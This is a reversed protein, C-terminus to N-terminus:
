STSNPNLVCLRIADYARRGPARGLAQGTRELADILEAAASPKPKTAAWGNRRLLHHRAGGPGVDPRPARPGRGPWSPLDPRESHGLPVRGRRVDAGVDVKLARFRPVAAPRPGLNVEGRWPRRTMLYHTSPSRGRDWCHGDRVLVSGSMPQFLWKHLDLTGLRGTSLLGAPRGQRHARRVRRLRRKTCGCGSRPAALWDLPDVAGTNTSGASACLAFARGSDRDRRVAAAAEPALWPPRRHAAGAGPLASLGDGLGDPWRPIRRTSVYLVSDAPRVARPRVPALCALRNAASGGTVLGATGPPLGLWGRFWDTVELEVQTPGASEMWARLVPQGGGGDTGGARYAWSTFSPVFAFYGPHDTRSSPPLTRMVAGYRRM